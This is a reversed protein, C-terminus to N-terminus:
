VDGITDASPLLVGKLRLIGGDELVGQVFSIDDLEQKWYILACLNAQLNPFAQLHWVAVLKTM